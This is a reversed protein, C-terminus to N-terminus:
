KPYPFPVYVHVKKFVLFRFSSLNPLGAKDMSPEFVVIHKPKRNTGLYLQQKEQRAHKTEAYKREM